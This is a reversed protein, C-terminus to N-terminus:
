AAGARIITALYAHSVASSQQIFFVVKIFSQTYKQLNPSSLKNVGVQNGMSERENPLFSLAFYVPLTLNFLYVFWTSWLEALM